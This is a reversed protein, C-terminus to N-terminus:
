PRVVITRTRRAVNEQPDTVQARVRIRLERGRALARRAPPSLKLRFRVTGRPRLRGSRRGVAPPRIARRLADARVSWELPGRDSSRLTLRLGRRAVDRARQRGPGALLFIPKRRITEFSAEGQLPNGSADVVGEADIRYTTSDALPRAPTLALRRTGPDYAVGVPVAEGEEDVLRVSDPSVCSVAETFVARITGNLPVRRARSQLRIGPAQEDPSITGTACQRDRTWAWDGSAPDFGAISADGNVIVATIRSFRQPNELTLRGPGGQRLPQILTNVSGSSADGARGVLALAGLTGAPLSGAFTLAGSAPAAVDYLAFTTHDMSAQVDPAGPGMSGRREVEPYPHTPGEPFGTGPTRWEPLAAAFQIFQDFFTTGRAALASQYAAPAFSPPQTSTSADWTARVVDPGFRHSLFLNWVVDGYVKTNAPDLQAAPNFRTLPIATQATWRPAPLYNLYDNIGDYVQDEMWVASSEFLWFDQLTDIAYHVVHNYEHAATVRLPDIPNAYNPFEAQAYDDDMVLFASRSNGSQGPDAAAYGFIGQGGLQKVYVDTRDDGGRGADPLPQRWGLRGNIAGRSIELESGLIEVYDPIGNGDGDSLDPADEGAAVYHIRFSATDYPPAEPVDYGDGFPDGGGDTPRALYAEAERREAGGLAPLRIALERLAHTYDHGARGAHGAASGRRGPREAGGGLLARAGALAREARAEDRVLAAAKGGHAGHGPHAAAPAAVVCALVLAPPVLRGLRAM